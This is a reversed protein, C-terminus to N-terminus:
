MLPTFTFMRPTFRWLKRGSLPRVSLLAFFMSSTFRMLLMFM